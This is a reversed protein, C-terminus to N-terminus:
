SGVPISLIQGVKISNSSVLMNAQKLQDLTVGYKLAIGLLTEGRSIKHVPAEPSNHEPKNLSTALAVNHNKAYSVIGQQIAQAMKLQYTGSKLRREEQPNSIFATEVLISPIDPSKLVMFGAKQVTDSHLEGIRGFNNLVEKAVLQSIDQAATQSLDLLVSALVDDKDDLSIGGVLDAANEHDALWRAAVSTAGRRSLTFVSAGTVDSNNFADAHISVFLDANAKRAIKIRERLPVFYDGKRVMVAKMGPQKNILSTLKQAIEFVVQKELTGHTGRAGPDKGGHGADVAVVFLKVKGLDTKVVKSAKIAQKKALPKTSKVPLDIVLRPGYKNNAKLIFSKPAVKSQLDIVVRLDKKNRHGTRLSALIPHNKPPQALSKELYTDNFDIVLREPNKLQFIQYEPISSVDFVLRTNENTSQIRLKQVKTQAAFVVSINLILLLCLIIFKRM